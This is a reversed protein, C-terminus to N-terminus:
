KKRRNKGWQWLRVVAGVFVLGMLAGFLVYGRILLYIMAFLALPVMWADALFFLASKDPKRQEMHEGGMM